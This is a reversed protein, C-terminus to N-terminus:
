DPGQLPEDPERWTKWEVQFVNPDVLDVVVDVTSGPTAFAADAPGVAVRERAPYSRGNVDIRLDVEIWSADGLEGIERAGLITATGPVSPGRRLQQRRLRTTADLQFALGVAALYIGATMFFPVAWSDFAVTVRAVADVTTCAFLWLGLLILGVGRRRARRGVQPTLEIGRDGAARMLGRLALIALLAGAAALVIRWADGAFTARGAAFGEDVVLAVAVVGTALQVLGFFLGWIGAPPVTPSTDVGPQVPRPLDRGSM